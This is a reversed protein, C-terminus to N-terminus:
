EENNKRESINKALILSVSQERQFAFVVLSVYGFALYVAAPLTLRTFTPVNFLFHKFMSM